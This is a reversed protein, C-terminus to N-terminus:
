PSKSSVWGLQPVVFFPWLPYRSKWAQSQTRRARSGIAVDRCWISFCVSSPFSSPLQRFQDWFAWVRRSPFNLNWELMWDIKSAWEGRSLDWRDSSIHQKHPSIYHELPAVLSTDKGFNSGQIPGRSFQRLGDGDLQYYDLRLHFDRIVECLSISFQKREFNNTWQKEIWSLNLNKAECPFIWRVNKCNKKKDVSFRWACM